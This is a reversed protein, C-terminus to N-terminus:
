ARATSASTLGQARGDCRAECPLVDDNRGILQDIYVAKARAADGIGLYDLAHFANPGIQIGAGIEGLGRAQELVISRYGKRALGLAAALGGIGGGAILFPQTNRPM